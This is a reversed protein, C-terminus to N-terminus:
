CYCKRHQTKLEVRSRLVNLEKQLQQLKGRKWNSSLIGYHRIRVFRKPLIHLSFRRTFTCTAFRNG